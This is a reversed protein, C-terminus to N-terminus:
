GPLRRTGYGFVECLLFVAREIPSLTELVRLLALSLSEAFLTMAEPGEDPRVLPEPLWVGVYEERRRKLARLQDICLRTVIRRLYRRPSDVQGVHVRQWRLFADQVVDEADSVGGLMGYAIALLHQREAEFIEVPDTM